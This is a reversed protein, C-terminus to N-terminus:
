MFYLVSNLQPFRGTEIRLKHCSVRIKTFLVRIDRNKLTYFYPEKCCRNKFLSYTRLKGSTSTIRSRWTSKYLSVLKRKVLSHLNKKHLSTSSLNLSKFIHNVSTVWSNKDSNFLINGESFAASLLASVKGSYMRQYYKVTNCIIDVYLPYRGLEGYVADNSTRKHVSLVYKLFKM